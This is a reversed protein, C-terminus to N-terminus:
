VSGHRSVGRVHACPGLRQLLRGGLGLQDAIGTPADSPALSWDASSLVTRAHNCYVARLAPPKQLWARATYPDWGVYGNRRLSGGDALM